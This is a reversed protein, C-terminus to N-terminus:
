HSAKEIRVFICLNTKLLSSFSMMNQLFVTKLKTINDKLIEILFKRLDKYIKKRNHIQVV